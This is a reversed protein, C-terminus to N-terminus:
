RQFPQLTACRIMAAGGPRLRFRRRSTQLFMRGFARGFMELGDGHWSQSVLAATRRSGACSSQEFHLIDEPFCQSALDSLLHHRGSMFFDKIDFKILRATSPVKLRKLHSLLQDIDKRIHPHKAIFSKLHMGIWRMGPNMFHKPAAHIIRLSVQGPDKHTKVTTLVSCAFDRGGRRLSSTLANALENDGSRLRVMECVNRYEQVMDTPLDEHVVIEQYQPERLSSTVAEKLEQKNVLTFGGDKDTNVAGLPGGRLLKLGWRAIPNLNSCLHRKDRFFSRSAAFRKMAALKADHLFVEWEDSMNRGLPPTSHRGHLKWWHQTEPAPVEHASLRNFEYRWRIKLEWQQFARSVNALSPLLRSTFVHKAHFRLVLEILWAVDRPSAM